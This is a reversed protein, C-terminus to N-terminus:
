PYCSDSGGLGVRIQSTKFFLTEVTKFHIGVQDANFRDIFVPQDPNLLSFGSAVLAGFTIPDM